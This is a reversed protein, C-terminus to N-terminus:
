KYATSKAPTTLNKNTYLEEWIRLWIGVLRTSFNEEYFAFMADFVDQTKTPDKISKALDFARTIWRLATPPFDNMGRKTAEVYADIATKAMDFTPRRKAILKALDWAADSYRAVMLPNKCTTARGEWYGIAESDLKTVDPDCTDTGPISMMAAFHTGWYSGRHDLSPILYFVSHEWLFANREDDGFSYESPRAAALACAIETESHPSNQAEYSALITSAWSPVNM